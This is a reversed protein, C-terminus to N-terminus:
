KDMFSFDYDMFSKANLLPLVMVKANFNHEEDTDIVEATGVFLVIVEHLEPGEMVALRKRLEDITSTFVGSRKGNRSDALQFIFNSHSGINEHCGKM